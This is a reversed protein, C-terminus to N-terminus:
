AQGDPRPLKEANRYGRQYATSYPKPLMDALLPEGEQADIRGWEECIAEVQSTTLDVPKVRCRLVKQSMIAALRRAVQRADTVNRHLSHIAECFGDVHGVAWHNHREFVVDAPDAESFQELRKNIAAENSQELLSADRHSTYWVMWNNADELDRDRYWVLCEFKRWNGVVQRAAEDVDSWDIHTSTTM